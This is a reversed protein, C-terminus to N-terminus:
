NPVSVHPQTKGMSLTLLFCAFPLALPFLVAFSLQNIAVLFAAGLHNRWGGVGLGVGLGQPCHLTTPGTPVPFPSLLM